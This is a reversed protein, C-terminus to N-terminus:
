KGGPEPATVPKTEAIGAKKRIADVDLNRILTILNTWVAHFGYGGETMEQIADDKSWGQVAMRYVACMTGTRDAGHQCHFLIPAKSRDTVLKLFQVVDENEASWTNIKIRVLTLGSDKALGADKLEDDDSHFARLNIVTRIGLKQMEKFGEATPQASRYLGPAVEHFNPLGNAQIPKAWRAPRNTEAALAPAALVFAALLAAVIALGSQDLLLRQSSRSIGQSREAGSRPRCQARSSVLRQGPWTMRLAAAAPRCGRLRLIEHAVMLLGKRM